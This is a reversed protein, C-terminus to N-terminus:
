LSCSSSVHNYVAMGQRWSFCRGGAASQISWVGRACYTPFPCSSGSIDVIAATAVFTPRLFVRPNCHLMTKCETGLADNLLQVDSMGIHEKRQIRGRKKREKNRRLVHLDVDKTGVVVACLKEKRSKKNPGVRGPHLRKTPAQDSSDSTDSKMEEREETGGM